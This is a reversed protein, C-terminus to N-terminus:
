AKKKWARVYDVTFTSPLDADRPLGFWDGMTESDFNLTLPQSWHTNPGKRVLAGDFYFKLEKEDWELGYVHDGDALPAPAVYASGVQWHKTETPTHFVHVTINMKREFGPAKGGIEFVDIETWREKEQKYFWFSSSGASKMARAKVEFYGHLVAGKSQVAACTYDKYGKARAAEPPEAKRMTLQLKGDRVVVNAPDFWGPQRGEWTPNRPVWKAPDLEKGEFEDSLPEYKEWGGANAQDSLPYRDTVKKPAEVPLDPKLDKWASRDPEAAAATLTASLVSVLLALLSVAYRIMAVRRM